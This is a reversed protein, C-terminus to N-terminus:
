AYYVYHMFLTFGSYALLILAMKRDQKEWINMRLLPYAIVLPYIFWSLYAFRNSYSARIVMIWFANALIYTNASINYTIDNFNRKMTLYLVMIVPMASYILFDFRFGTSSFKHANELEEVDEFYSFRDDFGLGAFFDGIVNGFVLSIFISAIWFAVAFKPKKVVLLALIACFCPLATSHHIAFALLMIVIAGIKYSKNQTLMVIALLSFSCAVGNRIGNVGYSYFSFSSIVFLFSIWINRPMIICCAIFIPMIYLFECIVFYDADSFGISKCFFTFNNWLWEKSWDVSWYENIIINYSHSYIRMDSFYAGSIPRNGLFFSLGLALLLTFLINKQSQKKDSFIVKQGASNVYNFVTIISFLLILVNYIPSYLFAPLTFSM